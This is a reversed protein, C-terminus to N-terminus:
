EGGGLVPPGAKGNEIAQIGTRHPLIRIYVMGRVYM